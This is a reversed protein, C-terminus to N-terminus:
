FRVQKKQLCRLKVKGKALGVKWYIKKIRLKDDVLAEFVGSAPHFEDGFSFGMKNGGVASVSKYVGEVYYYNQYQTSEELTSIQVESVNTFRANCALAREIKLRIEETPNAHLVGVMLYLISIFKWLKM